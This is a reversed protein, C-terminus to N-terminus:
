QYENEFNNLHCLYLKKKIYGLSITFYGNNKLLNITKDNYNIWQKICNEIYDKLSGTLSYDTTSQGNNVSVIKITEKLETAQLKRDFRESINILKVTKELYELRKQNVAYGKIM